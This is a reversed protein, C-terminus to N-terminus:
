GVPYDAYALRVSDPAWSNVNITGQGGFLDIRRTENRALADAVAVQVPKNEPHGLTGPPFSIYVLRRGDPSLHPFWNVREDATLQEVGSGDPRMRFLQAHGPIDTNLEANFYVWAGDPSFESGDHPKPSDTLRTTV